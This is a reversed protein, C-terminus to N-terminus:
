SPKQALAFVSVGIPLNARRLILNELWVWRFL